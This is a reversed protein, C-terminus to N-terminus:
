VGSVKREKSVKILNEYVQNAQGLLVDNRRINLEVSVTELAEEYSMNELDDTLEAKIKMNIALLAYFYQTKPCVFGLPLRSIIYWVSLKVSSQKDTKFWIEKSKTASQIEASLNALRTNIASSDKEKQGLLEDIEGEVNDQTSDKGSLKRYRENVLKFRNSSDSVFTM